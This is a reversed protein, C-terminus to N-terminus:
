APRTELEIFVLDNAKSTRYPKLGVALLSRLSAVNPALVYTFVRKVGQRKAYRMAVRCLRKQLGGGRAAPAVGVRPIFAGKPGIHLGVFGVPEGDDEAIWWEHAVDKNDALSPKDLPFTLRDLEHVAQLDDTRRIVITM